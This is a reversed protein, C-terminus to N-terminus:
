VKGQREVMRTALLQMRELCIADREFFISWPHACHELHPRVIAKYLVFCNVTAKQTATACQDAWKFHCTIM